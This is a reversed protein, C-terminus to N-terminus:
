PVPTPRAVPRGPAGGGAGGARAGAHGRPELASEDPVVFRYGLGRVTEIFEAGIKRRLAAVYVEVVNSGPDFDVKWVLQLLKRRSLVEGQHRLLNALLTLERASLLVERGGLLARHAALDVQLPGARLTTSGEALIRLRVRIRAALEEVSFPKTIYDDAGADLGGVKSSTDDLATVLIVPLRPNITRIQSLVELGGMGPLILDLLVVEVDLSRVLALGA